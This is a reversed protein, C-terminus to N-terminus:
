EEKKDKRDGENEPPRKLKIRKRASRRDRRPPKRAKDELVIESVEQGRRMVVRNPHIAEVTWGEYEQGEEVRAIKPSSQTQLLALRQTGTLIVGSLIFAARSTEALTEEKSELEPPLPRRSRFFLPRESVEAYTDQPPMVFGPQTEVEQGPERPRPKAPPIEAVDGVGVETTLEVVLVVALLACLLALFM